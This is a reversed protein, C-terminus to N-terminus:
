YAASGYVPEVEFWYLWDIGKGSAFAANVKNALRGAKAEADKRLDPFYVNDDEQSYEPNTGNFNCEHRFRNGDTNEIVVYFTEAIFPQGDCTIGAQYLDSVAYAKYTQKKM